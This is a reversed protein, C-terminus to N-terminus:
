EFGEGVPIRALDLEGAFARQSLVGYLAELDGLNQQYRVKIGEVKEVIAAFKNQLPLPPVPLLVERLNTKSINPMSGAAGAALSQIQKRQSQSSLLKWCYIPNIISAEKFKFRFILDSMLLRPQTSFVYACAAVLEYTNKRSFLLDGAKVENQQSPSVGMPLAKNEHDKYICSTVAGLKLVGWEKNEAPRTECNPSKGSEIEQLLESFVKKEWGKENRVPDGFMQLFVSKLLEDLQELGQKRQAILGEVKGLLHAIRKQDDLPPLPIKAKTLHGIKIYKIIGGIANRRLHDMYTQMFYFLYKMSLVKENKNQIVYTRQYANFKGTYYKVNLDGNGAVLIAENDFAYTNILCPKEACTFFQYLGNEDSANVDLKGTVIEVIEGLNKVSM